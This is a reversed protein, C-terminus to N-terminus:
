ELMMTIAMMPNDPLIKVRKQEVTTMEGLKVLHQLVTSYANVSLSKVELTSKM